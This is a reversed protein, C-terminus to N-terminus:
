LISCRIELGGTAPEFGAPRAESLRAIPRVYDCPLEVPAAVQLGDFVGGLLKKECRGAVNGPPRECGARQAGHQASGISPRATETQDQAELGGTLVAPLRAITEAEQGPFLHGYTDMTLTISSHRMVTQVAKPHAGAMALWAGCTHRLSHFDLHEGEHNVDALFDSQERRVHEEADRQAGGLWKARADALDDRLMDAVDHEDPMAFVPAKPAKTAVLAKLEMALEPKIYQGVIGIGKRVDLLFDILVVPLSCSM